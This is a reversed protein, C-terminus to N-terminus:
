PFISISVSRAVQRVLWAPLVRRGKIRLFFRRRWRPRSTPGPSNSEGTPLGAQARRLRRVRAPLAAVLRAQRVAAAEQGVLEVTLRLAEPAERKGPGLRGAAGAMKEREGAVEMVPLM